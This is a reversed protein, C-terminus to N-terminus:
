RQKKRAYQMALMVAQGAHIEPRSGEADGLGPGKEEGEAAGPGVV